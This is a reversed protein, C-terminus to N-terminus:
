PSSPGLILDRQLRLNAWGDLADKPGWRAEQVIPLLNRECLYLPRPTAKFEWGGDLVSTLYLTCGYGKGGRPM